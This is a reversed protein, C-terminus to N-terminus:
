FTLPTCKIDASDIHNTIKPRNIWLKISSKRICHVFRFNLLSWVSWADSVHLACRRLLKVQSCSVAVFFLLRSKHALLLGLIVVRSNLFSNVHSGSDIELREISSSKHIVLKTVFHRSTPSVAFVEGAGHLHGSHRLSLLEAVLEACCLRVLVRLIVNALSEHFTLSVGGFLDRFSHKVWLNSRLRSPISV